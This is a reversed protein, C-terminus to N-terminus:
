LSVEQKSERWDKMIERIRFGIADVTALVFPDLVEDATSPPAIIEEMLSLLLDM